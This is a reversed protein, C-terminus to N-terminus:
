LVYPPKFDFRMVFYIQDTLRSVFFFGFINRYHFHIFLIRQAIKKDHHARGRRHAHARDHIKNLFRHFFFSHRQLVLFTVRLGGPHQHIEAFHDHVYEMLLHPPKVVKLVKPTVRRLPIKYLLM